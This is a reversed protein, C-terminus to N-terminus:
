QAQDVLYGLLRDGDLMEYGVMKRGVRTCGSRRGARVADM